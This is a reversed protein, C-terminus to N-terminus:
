LGRALAIATAIDKDQSGKDGGCLLVILVDGRKTYYVRYGPGFNIKLESVGDTLNRYTGPNGQALRKIRAQIKARGQLDKLDSIWARYIATDEIKITPAPSPSEAKKVDV